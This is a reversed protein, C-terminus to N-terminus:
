WPSSEWPWPSSPRPWPWPSSPWPWSWPMQGQPDQLGLVQGRPCMEAFSMSKVSVVCPITVYIILHGLLRMQLKRESMQVLLDCIWKCLWKGTQRWSAICLRSAVQQHSSSRRLVMSYLQQIRVLEILSPVRWVHFIVMVIVFCYASGKIHIDCLYTSDVIVCVICEVM